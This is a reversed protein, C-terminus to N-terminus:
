LLTIFIRVPGIVEVFSKIQAFINNKYITSIVNNTNALKM